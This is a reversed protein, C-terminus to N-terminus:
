LLDHASFKTIKSFSNYMYIKLHAERWMRLTYHLLSSDQSDYPRNAPFWAQTTPIIALAQRLDFCNRFTAAAKLMCVLASFEFSFVTHILLCTITLFSLMIHNRTVTWVGSRAELAFFVQNLFCPHTLRSGRAWEWNLSCTVLTWTTTLGRHHPSALVWTKTKLTVVDTKLVHLRVVITHSLHLMSM